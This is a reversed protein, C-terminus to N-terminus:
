APAGSRGLLVAPRARGLWLYAHLLRHALDARVIRPAAPNTRAQRAEAVARVRPVGFGDVLRFERLRVHVSPRLRLSDRFLRDASRTRASRARGVPIRRRDAASHRARDAEGGARARDAAGAGDDASRRRSQRDRGLPLQLLRHLYPSRGLDLEVRYRGMHGLLDVLPPIAPYILPIAGRPDGAAVAVRTEWWPRAGPHTAQAQTSGSIAM